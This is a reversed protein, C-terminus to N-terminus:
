KNVETKIIIHIKKNANVAKMTKIFFRDVHDFIANETPLKGKIESNKFINELYIYNNQCIM